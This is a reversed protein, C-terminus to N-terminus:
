VTPVTLVTLKAWVIFLISWSLLFIHKRGFFHEGWSPISGLGEVHCASIRVVLSDLFKYHLVHNFHAHIIM